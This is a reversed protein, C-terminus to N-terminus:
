QQDQFVIQLVQVEQEVMVQDVKHHVQHVMQDQQLHEVVVLEVLDVGLEQTLVQKAV